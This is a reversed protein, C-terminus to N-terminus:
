RKGEMKQREGETRQRERRGEVSYGGEGSRRQICLGLIESIASQEALTFPKCTRARLTSDNRGGISERPLLKVSSGNICLPAISKKM